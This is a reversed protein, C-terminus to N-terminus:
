LKANELDSVDYATIAIGGHIYIESLFNKQIDTLKNPRIKCEVALFKGTKTVGIIDSGGKIGSRWMRERTQGSKNTYVNRTVGSNNRWVYHGKYLLYSICVNVLQTETM